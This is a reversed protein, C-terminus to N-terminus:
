IYRQRDVSDLHRQFVLRRMDADDTFVASFILKSPAKICIFAFSAGHHAQTLLQQTAAVSISCPEAPRMSLNTSFVHSLKGLDRLQKGIQTDLESTVVFIQNTVSQLLKSVALPAFTAGSHSIILVVSDHLDWANESICHGTQAMPIELGDLGLLKNSSITKVVLHKFCLNFDAAMQEGLWLSM